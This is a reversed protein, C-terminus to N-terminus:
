CKHDIETKLLTISNMKSTLENRLCSSLSVLLRKHTAIYRKLFETSKITM